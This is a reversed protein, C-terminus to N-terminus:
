KGSKFDMVSGFDTLRALLQKGLYQIGNMVVSMVRECMPVFFGIFCQINLMTQNVLSVTKLQTLCHNWVLINRCLKHQLRFTNWMGNLALEQQKKYGGPAVSVMGCFQLIQVNWTLSMAWFIQSVVSSFTLPATPNTREQTWRWNM